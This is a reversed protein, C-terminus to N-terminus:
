AALLAKGRAKSAARLQKRVAKKAKQAETPTPKAAGSRRAALLKEKAATRAAATLIANRKFTQAYPNLKILAETNRLPNKKVGARRAPRRTPRVVSQVEDSNILRALDANAMTSSPLNYGKKLTSAKRGTGYLADLREFASKTWILFRGLHGGPALKLLNLRDVNILEVGPINRFGRTIGNDNKYVILPGLRQVHRRNRLKGAGARLKRSEKVKEVDAYAGLAKLVQVAVKTKNVAEIADAVVLPVENIGEIKHGRAFVLSPLASAALASVTAFRRQNVNVKRHWRRWVKTPAFM